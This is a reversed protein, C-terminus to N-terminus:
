LIPVQSCIRRMNRKNYGRLVKKKKMGQIM